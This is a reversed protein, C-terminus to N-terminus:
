KIDFNQKHRDKCPVICVSGAADEVEVMIWSVFSMKLSVANQSKNANIAARENEIENNSINLAATM